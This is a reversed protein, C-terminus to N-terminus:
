RGGFDQEKAFRVIGDVYDLVRPAGSGLRRRLNSTDFLPNGRFYPLFAKGGRLITRGRRTLSLPAALIPRVWSAYLKPEVYRIPPRGFAEAFRAALVEVREADDGAALHFCEGLTEPDRRLRALADAVFDVPVIDVLTDPSGPFLRWWGRAYLKLPWYLVNFAKTEGTRSDGVVISPRHIAGPMGEAIAARVRGEAQCKSWEYSNRFAQGVDCEAELVRGTRDGAVYATSVHDLRTLRGKLSRALALIADTSAINEEAAKEAPMDFRVSAASHVIATVDSAVRARDRASLGLEPATVDGAVVDIRDAPLGASLEARREALHAADRARVLALVTVGPDELLRPLLATGIHGTAGTVLIQEAPM